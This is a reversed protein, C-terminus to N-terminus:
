NSPKEGTSRTGFVIKWEGKIKELTATFMSIDDNNTGKYSFKDHRKYTVYAASGDAFINVSEISLLKGSEFIIDSNEM